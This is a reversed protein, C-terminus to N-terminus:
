SQVPVFKKAQSTMHRFIDEASLLKVGNAATALADMPKRQAAARLNKVEQRSSIYRWLAAPKGNPIKHNNTGIFLRCVAWEVVVEHLRLNRCLFVVRAAQHTQSQVSRWIHGRPSKSLHSHAANTCRNRIIEGGNICSDDALMLGRAADSLRATKWTNLPLRPPFRSSKSVLDLAAACAIEFM